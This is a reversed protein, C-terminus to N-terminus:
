PQVSASSASSQCKAGGAAQQGRWKYVQRSLRKEECAEIRLSPLVHTGDKRDDAFLWNVNSIALRQSSQDCVSLDLDQLVPLAGEGGSRAQLHETLASRRGKQRIPAM